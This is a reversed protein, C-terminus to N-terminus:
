QCVSETLPIQAANELAFGHHSVMKRLLKKGTNKKGTLKRLRRVLKKGLALQQATLSRYQNLGPENSVETCFPSAECNTATSPFSWSTEWTSTHLEEALTRANRAFRVQKTIGKGAKLLLTSAKIVDNRLALAAGDLEFLSPRIDVTKCEICSMGDGGCEGCRDFTATGFADGKCDLCSTGDGGCVGCQDITALGNPTGSCDACSSGDGGCVGCEDVVAGGCAVGNCDRCSSGDGGIVGCDDILADRDFSFAITAECTGEGCFRTMDFGLGLLDNLSLFEIDAIKNGTSILNLNSSQQYYSQEISLDGYGVEGGIENVWAEYDTLSAFGLNEVGLGQATVAAYLGTEQVGADNLEAFRVAFLNAEESATQFDSSSFNLFVDGHTIVDGLANGQAMGSLPLTSNVVVIVKAPNGETGPLERFAMGRIEFLHDVGVNLGHVGDHYSDKAYQWSYDSEGAESDSNTDLFISDNLCEFHYSIMADQVVPGCLSESFAPSCLLLASLAISLSLIHKM